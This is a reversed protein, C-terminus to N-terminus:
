HGNDKKTLTTWQLTQAKYAKIAEIYRGLIDRQSDIKLAMDDSNLKIM